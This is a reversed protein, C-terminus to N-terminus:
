DRWTPYFQRKISLSLGKILKWLTKGCERLAPITNWNTTMPICPVADYPKQGSLPCVKYLCVDAQTMGIRGQITSYREAKMYCRNKCGAEHWSNCSERWPLALGMFAIRATMNDAVPTM